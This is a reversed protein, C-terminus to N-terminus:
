QNVGLLAAGGGLFVLAVVGAVAGATALVGGSGLLLQKKTHLPILPTPSPVLVPVVVVVL